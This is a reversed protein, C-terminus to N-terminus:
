LTFYFVAGKEVEGEAWIRGGHRNIIRNVTALGIGTGPFESPSHLRQFAQFLKDAYKMEFGAGDDRIFYVPEGEHQAVGFEIRATPHKSTFKWANGLLNELVARLLAADGNVAIGEAIVFEVQREPQAKQLETAITNALASLDVTERKMESRTMHSLILLDDILQSMRQAANRVRKLHDKGQEDLRDTYDELLAQSFGDISRLPARLDHSVSYSFSELEKNVAELQATRERVRQELEANLRRIEEEVRKRETIDRAAAFVGQTEGAENKYVVANYLVYTVKGSTHRIALPYDKVFGQSFVQQYGERAKEPETFYDSFDSGILQERPSGTISETAKNVDMIKGDKSITVLPDLSAEILGSAYLSIVHAKDEAKEREARTRLATIGYALDNALETMLKVEEADFADPESAYINLIGFNQTGALPLAISSAYGRKTAEDCWPAYALDAHINKVVCPKGTRIATGTPGRGFETDSWTIKISELYGGEYGAQAVPRVTKEEDHEAFGVWAMRYGGVEVTIRCVERLLQAEEKAHMLTQNVDSLVMLARNIRHLEEEARMREKIQEKLDITREEVKVELEENLVRLEDRAEQLEANKQVATEYTSLLINLIQQREATIYYKQGGFCIEIGMRVKESERLKRNALVYQIRSLLYKEDYPKTIFNDAGCSLGQLVDVPDSLATLLIVPIDKLKENEKICKCLLYGDMEPMVIDSIVITPKSENLQALAEKGNYAVQVSFNNKELLFKLKEAQTLSDEVILIEENTQNENM